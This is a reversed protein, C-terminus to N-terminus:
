VLTVPRLSVDMVESQTLHALEKEASGLSDFAEFFKVPISNNSSKDGEDVISVRAKDSDVRAISFVAKKQNYFYYEFSKMVTLGEEPFANYENTKSTLIIFM